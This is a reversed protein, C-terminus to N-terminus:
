MVDQKLKILPTKWSSINCLKSHSPFAILNAFRRFLLKLATAGFKYWIKYNAHYLDYDCLITNFKRFTTQIGWFHKKTSDDFERSEYLEKSADYMCCWIFFATNKSIIDVYKRCALLYLKPFAMSASPLLVDAKYSTRLLHLLYYHTAYKSQRREITM